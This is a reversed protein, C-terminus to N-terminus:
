GEFIRLYVGSEDQLFASYSCTCHDCVGGYKGHRVAFLDLWFERSGGTSFYFNGGLPDSGGNRIGCPVLSIAPKGYFLHLQRLFEQLYFLQHGAPNFF